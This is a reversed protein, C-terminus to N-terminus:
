VAKLSQELQLMQIKNSNEIDRELLLEKLLSITTSQRFLSKGQANMLKLRNLLM